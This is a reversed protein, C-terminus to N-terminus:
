GMAALARDIEAMAAADLNHAEALVEIERQRAQDTWAAPAPEDPAAWGLFAVKEKRLDQISRGLRGYLEGAKELHPRAKEGLSGANDALFRGGALRADYLTHTTFAHCRYFSSRCEVTLGTFARMDELWAEYAAEGFCYEWKGKERWPQWEEGPQRGRRWNVLGMLLGRILADRPPLPEQTPELFFPGRGGTVEEFPMQHFGEGLDFCRVLVTNGGDDYGYIVGTDGKIYATPCHGADLAAVTRRKKEDVDKVGPQVCGTARSVADAEEEFQGVPGVTCWETGDKRRVYRLRFALGSYVMLSDYDFPRDTVALAASVAAIYTTNGSVGWALSPVGEIVKGAFDDPLRNESFVQEVMEIMREKLRERSAHLRSKVTNVPVDLFAAIEKQSYGNVYFLTVAERQPQPLSRIAEIVKDMMEREEAAKAPGPLPSAVTSETELPVTAVRRARTVRSCRYRVVRRFWAPFAAANRLKHLNRYAEIFAEQTVDEALHFDGLIAYACGYGMDQFKRVIECFAELDGAQAARVLSELKDM